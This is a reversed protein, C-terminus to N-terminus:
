TPSLICPCKRTYLDNNKSLCKEGLRFAGSGLGAYLTEEFNGGVSVNKREEGVAKGLTDFTTEVFSNKKGHQKMQYLAKDKFFEVAAVTGVALRAAKLIKLLSTQEFSRQFGTELLAKSMSPELFTKPKAVLTFGQKENTKSFIIM